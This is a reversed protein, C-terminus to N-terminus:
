SESANHGTGRGREQLVCTCVNTGPQRTDYELTKSSVIEGITWIDKTNQKTELDVLVKRIITDNHIFPRGGHVNPSSDEKATVGSLPLYNTARSEGATISSYQAM